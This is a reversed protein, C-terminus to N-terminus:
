RSPSKLQKRKTKERRHTQLGEILGVIWEGKNQSAVSYPPNGCIVLVPSDKISQARNAEEALKPMMPLQIQESIRELTNTLFINIREDDKLPVNNDLLFQSLKLHAIAYPAM